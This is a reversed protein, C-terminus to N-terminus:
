GFLKRIFRHLAFDDEEIDQERGFIDLGQQHQLVILRDVVQLAQPNNVVFRIYQFISVKYGSQDLVQSFINDVMGDIVM